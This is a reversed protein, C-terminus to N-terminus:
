WPWYVATAWAMACGTSIRFLQPPIGLRVVKGLSAGFYENGAVMCIHVPSLTSGVANSLMMVLLYPMVPTGQPILGMMIPFVIGVVAVELGTAAGVLMPLAIALAVIPIGYGTLAGAVIGVMGSHDVATKFVMVSALTFLLKPQVGKAIMKELLARSAGQTVLAFILGASMAYLFDMGLVLALVLPIVFPAIEMWLPVGGAEPEADAQVKKPQARRGVLYWYGFLTSALTVPLHWGILTFLPINLVASALILHPKFPFVQDWVHRFFLNVSAKTNADSGIENGYSDVMPASLIAGGPVPFLGLVSPVLVTLIRPDNVVRRLAALIRQLSGTNQLFVTLMEIITVVGLLQITTWDLLGERFFGAIQIPASGTAMGLLIAGVILLYPLM